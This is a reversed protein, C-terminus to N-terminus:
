KNKHLTTFWSAVLELSQSVALNDFAHTKKFVITIFVNILKENFLMACTTEKLAEPYLAVDREKLELLM